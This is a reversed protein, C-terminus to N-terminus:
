SPKVGMKALGRSIVYAAILGIAGLASAEDPVKTPDALTEIVLLIVGGVTVGFETTKVGPKTELGADGSAGANSM